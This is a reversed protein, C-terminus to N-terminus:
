RHAEGIVEVVALSEMHVGAQERNMPNQAVAAHFQRAAEEDDLVITTFSRNNARDLTWYGAVFGPHQRVLPMVQEHLGQQQEEM